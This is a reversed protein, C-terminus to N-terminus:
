PIEVFVAKQKPLVSDRPVFPWHQPNTEPSEAMAQLKPDSRLDLPILKSAWPDYGPGTSYGKTFRACRSMAADFDWHQFRM